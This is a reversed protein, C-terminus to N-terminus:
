AASLFTDLRHILPAAARLRVEAWDLLARSAAVDEGAQSVVALGKHRLLEGRPHDQAFPPPVRKLKEMAELKFGDAVLRDVMDQITAGERPDDLLARYRQLIAPTMHWAGIAVYDGELGSSVYLGPQSHGEDSDSARIGISAAVFTKYPTKDKSFRTDRQIRMFHPEADLINPYVDVLRECLEAVFLELPRKWLRSFDAQRAKFWTRSQEAQLEFFFQVAEDTFGEFREVGTAVAAMRRLTRQKKILV